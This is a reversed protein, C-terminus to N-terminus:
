KAIAERIHLPLGRETSCRKRELMMGRAGTNHQVCTEVLTRVATQRALSPKIQQHSKAEVTKMALEMQTVFRASLLELTISPSQEAIYQISRNASEQRQTDMRWLSFVDTFM